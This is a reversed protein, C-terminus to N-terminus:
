LDSYHKVAYHVTHFFLIVYPRTYPFLKVLCVDQVGLGGTSGM